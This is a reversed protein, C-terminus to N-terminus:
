IFNDVILHFLFAFFCFFLLIFFYFVVLYKQFYILKNRVEFYENPALGFDKKIEGKNSFREALADAM